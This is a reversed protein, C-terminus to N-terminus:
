NAEWKESFHVIADHVIVKVCIIPNSTRTVWYAAKLFNFNKIYAKAIETYHRNLANKRDNPDLTNFDNIFTNVFHLRNNCIYDPDQKVTHGQHIYINCLIEPIACIKTAKAVRYIFEIDQHRIFSEDFGGIAEAIEKKLILTSGAATDLQFSLLESLIQENIMPTNDVTKNAYIRRFGCLCAGSDTSKMADIQKRLKNNEFWDDDDLFAVYKGTANRIGTNRAASGKMNKEHAIYIISGDDIYKQLIKLMRIQDDTNRGNDDIVIIEIDVSIQEFCSKIAREIYQQRKYTPIIISVKESDIM